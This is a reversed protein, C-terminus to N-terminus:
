FLLYLVLFLAYLLRLEASYTPMAEYLSNAQDDRLQAPAAPSKDTMAPRTPRCNTNALEQFNPHCLRIYDCNITFYYTYYHYLLSIICSIITQQSIIPFIIPFIIRIITIYYHYLIVYYM